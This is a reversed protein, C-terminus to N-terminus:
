LSRAYILSLSYDIDKPYSTMKIKEPNKKQPGLLKIETSIYRTRGAHLDWHHATKDSKIHREREGRVNLMSENMM